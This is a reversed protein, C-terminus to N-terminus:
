LTAGSNQAPNDARIHTYVLDRLESLMRAATYRQEILDITQRMRAVWESSFESGEHHAYLPIIEKELKEYFDFATKEGDLAWGIGNWDVEDTWGDLTTCMLVGNLGAKMGSTGCAEFGRVPTNVLVDVGSLMIKAVELSYNQLYVISGGYEGIINLIQRLTDVGAEDNVHPKGSLVIRVPVSSQQLLSHLKPLDEFISLPRKYRAIRRSWGLILDRESWEVQTTQAIYDCLKKKCIQHAIWLAHDDTKTATAIESSQWYKQRVGNTVPVMPHHSWTNLAEKAHLKSVAQPITALRLALMTPSFLSTDEIIGPLVLENPDIPFELAYQELYAVVLDRSFVDNGAPVLTHNTFVVNGIDKLADAFRLNKSQQSRKRALEFFLLASHGENLHYFRPHIGLAELARYGGIGLIMEQEFRHERDGFYLRDTIGAEHADNGEVNTDLLLLPCSGVMKLFLQAKVLNGHIPVEILLPSGDKTILKLGAAQPDIQEEATINAEKSIEQRVYGKNYYLGVGVYAQNEESAQYLLDGALVGLGGAYIPLRQDVAFEACFYAIPFPKVQHLVDEHTITDIQQMTLFCLVM